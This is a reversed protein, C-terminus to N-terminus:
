SSAGSEANLFARAAGYVGALGGLAGPVIRCSEVAPKFARRAVERQLPEFLADGAQTVGGVIVFLDPNFINLLNAVGTGLYRATVRDYDGNVLTSLVSEAGLQLQEVARMAIAPGSAYAELCGYNGCGCRRGNMEITVHGIEGACDAAGHHLRGDLVIGGGIGTGITMGIAYRADRAAGVWAEGLIACNADNDLTTHLGTAAALRDRLPMNVWGLNPTLLVIGRATDLPGPAGVGLGVVHGGTREVQDVTHRSMATLDDVIADPGRAPDTPRSHDGIVDGGDRRVAGVVLNTGGIDIGLVYELLAESLRDPHCAVRQHSATSRYRGHM